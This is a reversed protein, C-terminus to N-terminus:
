VRICGLGSHSRVEEVKTCHRESRLLQLRGRVGYILCFERCSRGESMIM